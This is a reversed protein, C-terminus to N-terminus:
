RPHFQLFSAPVQPQSELMAEDSNGSEKAGHMVIFKEASM